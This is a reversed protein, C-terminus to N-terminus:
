TSHLYSVLAIAKRAYEEGSAGEALRLERQVGVATLYYEKDAESRGTTDTSISLQLMRWALPGDWYGGAVPDPRKSLDCALKIRQYFLPASTKACMAISMYIRTWDTMTNTFKDDLFDENIRILKMREMERRSFDRDSPNLAPVKSLDWEKLKANREPEGSEAVVLLHAIGLNLKATEFFDASVHQLPDDGPHAPLDVAGEPLSNRREHGDGGMNLSFGTEIQGVRKWVIEARCM